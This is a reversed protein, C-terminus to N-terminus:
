VLALYFSNLDSEWDLVAVSAFGAEKLMSKALEPHWGLTGLGRGGEESLASSMCLMVSYCYGLISLVNLEQMNRATNGTSLFDIVLYGAADDKLANRVAALVPEPRAMDHIADVTLAFDYRKAHMQENEREPNFLAVNSLAATREHAARLAIQSIDFGHFTSNPYRKALLELALGFGCGVDAVVAGAELREHLGAAAYRSTLM